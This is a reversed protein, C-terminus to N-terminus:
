EDLGPLKKVENEVYEAFSRIADGKAMGSQWKCLRHHVLNGLQNPASQFESIWRQEQHALYIHWHTRAQESLPIGKAESLTRLQCLAEMRARKHQPGQVSVEAGFDTATWTWASEKARKAAASMAERVLHMPTLPASHCHSLAAKGAKTDEKSKASEKGKSVKSKDNKKDKKDKKEKKEKKDKKDKKDKKEKLDSVKSSRRAQQTELMTSLTKDRPMLHSLIQWKKQNPDEEGADKRKRKLRNAVKQELKRRDEERAVQQLAQLKTKAASHEATAEKYFVADTRSSLLVHLIKEEDHVRGELFSLLSNDPVQLAKATELMAKYDALRRRHQDLEDQKKDDLVPPAPTSTLSADPRPQDVEQRGDSVAGDAKPLDGDLEEDDISEDDTEEEYAREGPVLASDVEEGELAVDGRPFPLIYRVVHEWKWVLGAALDQDIQAKAEARLAPMNLERWFPAVDSGLDDDEAM